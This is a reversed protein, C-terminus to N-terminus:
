FFVNSSRSVLFFMEDFLSIVGCMQSTPLYIYIGVGAASDTFARSQNRGPPDFRHPFLAYTRVGGRASVIDTESSNWNAAQTPRPESELNILLDGEQGQPLISIVIHKCTIPVNVTYSQWKSLASCITMTVPLLSILWFFSCFFYIYISLSIECM